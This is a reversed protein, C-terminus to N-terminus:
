FSKTDRDFFSVKEITFLVVKGVGEYSVGKAKMVGALRVGSVYEEHNSAADKAKFVWDRFIVIRTSIGSDWATGAIAPHMVAGTESRIRTTMQSTLLIAINKTAALKGIQSIFDGMVAWRRGLAWHAADNKNALPQHSHANEGTKPFAITFLTSISDVIILSTDTPPFNSSQHILLALLHPLSPTTFHHLRKLYGNVSERDSAVEEEPVDLDSLM